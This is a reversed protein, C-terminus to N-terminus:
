AISMELENDLQKVYKHAADIAITNTGTQDSISCQKFHLKTKCTFQNHKLPLCKNRSIISM